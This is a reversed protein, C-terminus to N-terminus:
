RRAVAAELIGTPLYVTRNSLAPPLRGFGFYDTYYGLSYPLVASKVKIKTPVASLNSKCIENLMIRMGKKSPICLHEGPLFYPWRKKLFRAAMSGYDPVTIYLCGGPNLRNVLDGTLRDPRVIHELVTILFIVDFKREKEIKGLGGDLNLDTKVWNINKVRDLLPPRDHFDVSTGSSLPFQESLLFSIDGNGAGVDLWSFTETITVVQQLARKICQNYWTTLPNKDRIEKIAPILGGSFSDYLQEIQEQEPLPLTLGSGCGICKYFDFPGHDKKYPHYLDSYTLKLNGSKCFCCIKIEESM